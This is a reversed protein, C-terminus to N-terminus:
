AEAEDAEECTIGEMDVCIIRLARAVKLAEYEPQRVARRRDPLWLLDDPWARSDLGAFYLTGCRIVCAPGGGRRHDRTRRPPTTPTAM